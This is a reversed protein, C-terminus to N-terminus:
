PGEHAPLLSLSVSSHPRPFAAPAPLAGEHPGSPAPRPPLPSTQGGPRGASVQFDEGEASSLKDMAAGGEHTFNFRSESLRFPHDLDSALSCPRPGPSPFLLFTEVM